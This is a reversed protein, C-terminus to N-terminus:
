QIAAKKPNGDQDLGQSAWAQEQIRDLRDTAEKIWHEYTKRIENPSTGVMRSVDEASVGAALTTSIFFHRFYHPTMSVGATKFAANLLARYHHVISTVKVKGDWFFYEANRPPLARLENALSMPIRVRFAEHTKARNGTILNDRLSCRKLTATDQIAMGSWRMLSAFLRVEEIACVRNVEATTPPKIPPKRFKTKFKPMPNVTLYGGTVCWTFFGGLVSWHIKLSSSTTTKYPLTARLATLHQGTISGLFALEHEKCFALLRGSMLKAKESNMGEQARYALWDTAAQEVTIRVTAPAAEGSMAKAKKEAVIVAQAFSRTGASERVQKGKIQYQLWKPCDCKLHASNRNCGVSHRSYVRIGGAAIQKLM